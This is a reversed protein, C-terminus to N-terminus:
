YPLKFHFTTGVGVESEVWIEGNMKVLLGKCISLGLGNGTKFDMEGAQSFRDFIM